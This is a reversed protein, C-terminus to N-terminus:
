SRSPASHDADAASPPSGEPSARLRRSREVFLVFVAPGFSFLMVAIGLSLGAFTVGHACCYHRSRVIIHCPVAVLLELVSGRFLRQCLAAVFDPPVQKGSIRFFLVSWFVWLGALSALLAWRHWENELARDGLLVTQICVAAAVVLLALALSAALITPWLAGKTLPRRSSIRVPAALLVLECGVMILLWLWFGQERFVQAIEGPSNWFALAAVPVALFALVLAYLVAVLLAWRKM